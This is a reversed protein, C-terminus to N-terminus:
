TFDVRHWSAMADLQKEKAALRATLEAIHQVRENERQAAVEAARRAGEDEARLSVRATELEARVAATERETGRLQEVLCTQAAQTDTREREAGHRV